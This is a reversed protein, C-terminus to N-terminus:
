THIRTYKLIDKNVSVLSGMGQVIQELLSTQYSLMTNIGSDDSPKEIGTGLPRTPEKIEAKPSDIVAVTSVQSPSNITSPAPTSLAISNTTTSTPLSVPNQISESSSKNFGPIWSLLGKLSSIINHFIDVIWQQRSIFVDFVSKLANGIWGFITGFVKDICDEVFNGVTKLIDLSKFFADFVADTATNFWTFKSLWESLITGVSYGVEFVTYVMGALGLLRLAIPALAILVRGISAISQGIFNIISGTPGGTFKKLISFLGRFGFITSSIIVGIGIWAKTSSDFLSAFAEIKTNIWTLGHAFNILMPITPAFAQQLQSMLREWQNQLNKTAKETEDAKKRDSDSVYKYANGQQILGAAITLVGDAEKVGAQRLLNARQVIMRLEQDNAKAFEATRQAAEKPDMGKLSNTFSALKQGFGGLGTKQFDMFTENLPKISDTMMKLFAQGLNKDKFSAVFELTSAAADSGVQGVLINAEISQSIADINELLKNRAIGTAQSLGTVRQGFIVLDKQVQTQSKSNMDTYGQQSELYAGLLDAAEKTNFGFQILQSAAGSLTKAFKGVGFANVATSYKEITKALETFRVGTLTSLQQLSELGTKADNFGSVVDIGSQYLQDFTDINEFFARKIGIAAAGLATEFIAVAASTSKQEGKKIYQIDQDEKERKRRKPDEDNAKKLNRIFKDLEDNAKKTDAPNNNGKASNLAKILLPFDKAQLDLMKELAGQIKFATDETAWPPLENLAGTFAGDAAGTIFVSNDAM